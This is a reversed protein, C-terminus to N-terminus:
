ALSPDFLEQESESQPDLPQTTRIEQESTKTQLWLAIGSALQANASFSVPESTGQDRILYNLGASSASLKVIGNRGVSFSCTVQPLKLFTSALVTATFAYVDQKSLTDVVLRVEKNRPIRSAYEFRRFDFISVHIGNRESHFRVHTADMKKICQRINETQEATLNFSGSFGQDTLDRVMGLLEGCREPSDDTAGHATFLGSTKSRKELSGRIILDDYGPAGFAVFQDQAHILVHSVLTGFRALVSKAATSM